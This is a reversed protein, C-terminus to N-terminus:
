VGRIYIDTIWGEWPGQSTCVGAKGPKGFPAAPSVPVWM